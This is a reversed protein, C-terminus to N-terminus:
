SAVGFAILGIVFAIVGLLDMTSSVIPIGHNDPDLGLRFTAIATYYAVVVALLTALMGATFSVGLMTLVGPSALGMVQAAVEAIAGRLTFMFAAFLFVITADLWAAAEPRRRPSLLGMHLKSSLRSTLIGGLAGASELFPPLLVLLAPFALFRELRSEAVLGALLDVGGMVVLILVSERIIRKALPLDVLLSRVTLAVAGLVVVTAVAPTVWPIGVLFTAVFLCPITAMDGVATILPAGVSDLDWERRYARRALALTFLLVVVSAMVGGIVGIVLFDVVSISDVGFAESIAKALISLLVSCALTLVAVSYVNQGLVGRRELTPSYLGAHIATGLRSGLAGFISGQLSVAAPVLVLLGPLAELTHTISGLVIGAVLSGISATAMGVFGQTITRREARWHALIARFGRLM